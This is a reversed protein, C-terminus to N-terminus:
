EQESVVNWDVGEDGKTGEMKIIFSKAPFFPLLRLDLIECNCYSLTHNNSKLNNRTMIM